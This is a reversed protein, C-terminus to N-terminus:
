GCGFMARGLHKRSMTMPSCGAPLSVISSKVSLVGFVHSFYPMRWEVSMRAQRKATESLQTGAFM